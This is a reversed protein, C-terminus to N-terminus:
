GQGRVKNSERWPDTQGKSIFADLDSKKYRIRGRGAGIRYYRPGLGEFRWYELCSVSRALYEAAQRTDYFPDRDAM